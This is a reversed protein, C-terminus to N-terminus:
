ENNIESLFIRCEERERSRKINELLDDELRLMRNMDARALLDRWNPSLDVQKVPCKIQCENLFALGFEGNWVNDKFWTKNMDTDQHDEFISAAFEICSAIVTSLCAPDFQTKGLDRSEQRALNKVWSSVDSSLKLKKARVMPHERQKMQVERMLERNNSVATSLRSLEAEFKPISDRITDLVSHAMYTHAPGMHPLHRIKLMDLGYVSRLRSESLTIKDICEKCSRLAFPWYIKRSRPKGCVECTSGSVLALARHIRLTGNQVHRLATKTDSSERSFPPSSTNFTELVLVLHDSVASSNIFNSAHRCTVSFSTLTAFLNETERRVHTCNNTQRVNGNEVVKHIIMEIMDFPLERSM